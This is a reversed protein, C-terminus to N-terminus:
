IFNFWRKARALRGFGFLLALLATGGLLLKNKNTFNFNSLINQKSKHMALENKAKLEEEKEIKEILHDQYQSNARSEYSGNIKNYLYGGATTAGYISAGTLIAYPIANLAAWSAGIGAGMTSSASIFRSPNKIINKTTAEVLATAGLGGVLGGGVTGAALSKILRISAGIQAISKKAKETDNEHSLLNKAINYNNEEIMIADEELQKRTQKGQNYYGFGVAGIGYPILSLMKRKMSSYLQFNALVVITTLIRKNM